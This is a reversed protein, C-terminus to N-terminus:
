DAKGLGLMRGSAVAVLAIIATLIVAGASGHGFDQGSGLATYYLYVLPPRAYPPYTGFTSLINYFEDFAQFANILLLLLVATSTPRLQPLTIHRLVKAGEAGDIAAAEYLTPSIRQIGALFLIMYFGIQLWLRASVIVLWYWPPDALSLWPISDAGFWGLVANALGSRVGSFISMKWILAAVVYSCATPLFFVSRFFAQMVHTRAVLLATTLSLVFTVPVIVAAFGVFTTLSDRFAPDRLMDLYNGAGVFTTPTVTNYASFFSLYISWGIPIYVFIVLGLVFPGVFVWFWLNQDQRGRWRQTLTRRPAEQGYAAPSAGM